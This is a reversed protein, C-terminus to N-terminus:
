GKQLCDYWWGLLTLGYRGSKEPHFQFATINDKKIAAVFEGYYDTTALVHESSKIRYSNVYYAWGSAMMGDKPEIKNWGIQPVKGETFKTAKGKLISFGKHGPSEESGEFLVQLGLCIGLFPKGDMIHDHLANYMDREKLTDVMSGFSGVGPFIICDSAELSRTDSVLETDYGLFDMANKVSALNGAGYDLIGMM